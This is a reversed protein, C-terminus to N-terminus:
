SRPSGPTTPAPTSCPPWPTPWCRAPPTTSTPRSCCSRSARPRRHAHRPAWCWRPSTPGTRLERTGAGFGTATIAMAPLPGWGRRWPPWCPPGPPPPSSSPWTSAAPPRAALLEVVAPGPQPAPRPRRAGHRHGTAVPAPPVEDVGLVELARLHRGRRRHRRHRRGRPLAGARAAPPAPPGRGRRPRRLHGPGPGCGDPCGPRRSWAPSTPPPACWTTRPAVRVQTAAIGCRLV